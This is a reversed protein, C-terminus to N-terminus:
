RATPEAAPLDGLQRGLTLTDAHGWYEVVQGDAIRFINVGTIAVSKGRTAHTGRLAYRVVVKHDAAILDEIAIHLDPYDSRLRTIQRRLDEHRRTTEPTSPAHYRYTPAHTEDAVALDGRNWAEEVFRRVLATHEEVAM